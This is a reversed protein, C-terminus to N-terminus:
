NVVRRKNIQYFSSVIVVILMLILVWIPLLEARVVFNCIIFLYCLFSHLDKFTLISLLLALGFMIGLGLIIDIDSFSQLIM